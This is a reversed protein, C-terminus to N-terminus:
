IGKAKQRQALALLETNLQLSPEYSAAREPGGYLLVIPLLSIWTRRRLTQRSVGLIEGDRILSTDLMFYDSTTAPLIFASFIPFVVSASDMGMGHQRGDVRLVLDGPRAEAPSIVEYGLAALQSRYKNQIGVTLASPRSTDPNPWHLVVHLAVRTGAPAPTVSTGTSVPQSADIVRMGMCATTLSALLVVIVARAISIVQKM